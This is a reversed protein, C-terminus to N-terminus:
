RPAVIVKVELEGQKGSLDKELGEPNKVNGAPDYVFCVLRQCDPHSQYRKIDIILQDGIAKDRLKASAMKTEIVTKESKLLFDMRGAGGGYSPTGEEARVDDFLGRLIAHLLDQVDYEDAIVLTARDDHRRALQKAIQHFRRLVPELRVVAPSPVPQPSGKKPVKLWPLKGLADGLADHLQSIGYGYFSTKQLSVKVGGNLTGECLGTVQKGFQGDDVHRKVLFSAHRYEGEDVSDIEWSWGRAAATITLVELVEDLPKRETAVAEARQRKEELIRPDHLHCYGSASAERTCRAGQSTTAKCQPKNM